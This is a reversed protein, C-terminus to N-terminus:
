RGGRKSDNDVMLAWRRVDFIWVPRGSLGVVLKDRSTSMSYVKGPLQVRAVVNHTPPARPDWVTMTQDWSGSVVFGREPVFEITKAAQSHSGVYVQQGSPVDFRKIAGDLGATFFCVDNQICCDMLPAGAHANFRVGLNLADYIRASGDWSSALVTDSYPSFRLRTIGDAPPNSVPEGLSVQPASSPPPNMM